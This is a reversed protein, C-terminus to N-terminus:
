FAGFDGHRPTYGARDIRVSALGTNGIARCAGLSLDIERGKVFPGRDNITVVVSQGNRINTVRLMTGFPLTRHAATLGNPNYNAGTATRTQHNERGYCSAIEANVPFAILCLLVAAVLVRM